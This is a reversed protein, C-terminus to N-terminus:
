YFRGYLNLPSKSPPFLGGYSTEKPDHFEAPESPSSIFQRPSARFLVVDRWSTLGSHDVLGIVLGYRNGQQEVFKKKVLRNLIGM